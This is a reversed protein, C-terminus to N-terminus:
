DRSILKERMEKEEQSVCLFDGFKNKKLIYSVISSKKKEDQFSSEKEERMKLMKSFYDGM